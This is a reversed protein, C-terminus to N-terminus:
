WPAWFWLALSDGAYEAGDLAEGGVTAVQGFPAPAQGSDGNDTDQAASSADDDAPATVVPAGTDTDDATGTADTATSGGCGVVLVGVVLLLLLRRM